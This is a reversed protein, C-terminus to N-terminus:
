LQMQLNVIFDKGQDQIKLHHKGPYLLELRRKVNGLGLGKHDNKEVADVTGKNNELLFSLSNGNLSIKLKIFTAGVEGKVGHKFSNELFPILLLPAIKQQETDGDIVTQIDLKEDSRIRQLAIYDNLVEIEKALPVLEENSQYLFYRMLESLQLITAPLREDKDLSMSYISNLTNFFFHPNVQAKLAKLEEQVRQKEKELLEKQLGNVLFWSKSLKLLTALVILTIFFLSVEWWAYYSIFYFGPFLIASWHDFLQINIWISVATILALPIFYSVLFPKNSLKPLLWYLHLYVVPLVTALFLTTYVYDVSAPPSNFKFIHLLIFFALIIFLIHHMIRMNRSNMNIKRASM